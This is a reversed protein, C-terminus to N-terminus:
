PVIIGPSSPDHVLEPEKAKDAAKLYFEISREVLAMLFPNAGFITDDEDLSLAAALAIRACQEEGKKFFVFAMEELRRKLTKRRALPYIKSVGEAKIEGIRSARQADSILIPSEQAAQIEEMLPEIAEPDVVWTELLKHDLLRGIQSSTLLSKSIDEPSIYDYILPREPITVNELIWPSIRLYGQSAEDDPTSKQSAYAMEMIQAVHAVSTEVPDLVRELFFDKLENMRKKSQTGAVFEKFGLEDNAVGIGVDYGRPFKPVALFLPRNGAGDIPGIYAISEAHDFIKALRPKSIKPRELDPISIGRQKLKFLAKRISKQVSKDDPFAKSIALIIPRSRTEDLPLRDLFLSALRPTTIHEVVQSPDTDELSELVQQLKAQDAPSATTHQKKRKARKEKKRAM